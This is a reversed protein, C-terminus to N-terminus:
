GYVVRSQLVNMRSLVLDASLGGALNLTYHLGCQECYNSSPLRSNCVGCLPDMSGKGFFNMPFTAHVLGEKQSFIASELIRSHKGIPQWSYRLRCGTCYFDVEAGLVLNGGCAGCKYRWSPWRGTRRAMVRLVVDTQGEETVFMAKCSRGQELLLQRLNNSGSQYKGTLSFVM